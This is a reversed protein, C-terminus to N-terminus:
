ECSQTSVLLVKFSHFGVDYIKSPAPHSYDSQKLFNRYVKGSHGM